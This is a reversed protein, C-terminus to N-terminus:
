FKELHQFIYLPKYMSMKPPSWDCFGGQMQGLQICYKEQSFITNESPGATGKYPIDAISKECHSIIWTPPHMRSSSRTRLGKNPLGAPPMILKKHINTYKKKKVELM